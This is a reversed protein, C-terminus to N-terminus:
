IRDPNRHMNNNNMCHRSLFAINPRFIRIKHLFAELVRLLFWFLFSFHSNIFVVPFYELIDPIIQPFQILLDNIHFINQYLM